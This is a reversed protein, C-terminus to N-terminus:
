ELPWSSYPVPPSAAECDGASRDLPLRNHAALPHTEEEGIEDLIEDLVGIARNYDDKTQLPGIPVLRRVRHYDANAEHIYEALM